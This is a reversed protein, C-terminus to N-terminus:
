THPDQKRYERPTMGHHRKFLKSFYNVDSIGCYQAVTQVQLTSARLLQAAHEMRKENVFDTVTKGTEQRFLTSLYGPSIGLTEALTSLTLDRSLDSEICLVAKEVQPSYHQAKHKRVLRCYTRVMDGFLEQGASLQSFSEIRKAFESSARDLYVPHVGGHEAAKRMLTNGIVCFNKMNRVPDATRSQLVSPVFGATLREARHIQGRSVIQMLENESDYRTKMIQMDLLLQHANSEEQMSFAPTLPFDLEHDLDIIEFQDAGGWITEGFASFLNILVSGDQIVPLNLYYDEVRKHLWPPVGHREVQELFEEHRIEFTIYPGAILVTHRGDGPLVLYLYNCLFEDQLRYITNTRAQLLKDRFLQDYSDQLSLFDRLGFDVRTGGSQAPILTLIQLRLKKGINELFELAPGYSM